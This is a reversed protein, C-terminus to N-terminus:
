IYYNLERELKAKSLKKNKKLVHRLAEQYSFDMDMLKLVNSASKSKTRRKKDMSRVSAYARKGSAKNMGKAEDRRSKYSQKKSKAKGRRMALSEDMRANYGQKKRGKRKYIVMGTKTKAQTYTVGKYTFSKKNGKRAKEKAIM